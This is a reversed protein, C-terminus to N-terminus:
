YLGLAAIAAPSWDGGPFGFFAAMAAMQYETMRTGPQVFCGRQEAALLFKTMVPKSVVDAVTAGPDLRAPDIPVPDDPRMGLPTANVVLGYGMPDPSAVQAAAGTARLRRALDEARASDADFLAIESVGAEALAFCIATGVGGTGVVLARKGAPNREAALLGAIFGVGDLMDATWRGDEGLSLVNAARALQARPLSIDALAAAAAKHPVTAIVGALNRMGRLGNLLASFDAPRVHFPVCLADVANHRLLGSLMAPARVQAIPDGAIGVLRTTGDVIPRGMKKGKERCGPQWAPPVMANLGSLAWNWAM